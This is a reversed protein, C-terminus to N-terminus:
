VAAARRGQPVFREKDEILQRREDQAHVWMASHEQWDQAWTKDTHTPFWRDLWQIWWPDVKSPTSPAAKPIRRALDVATKLAFFVGLLGQPSEMACLAMMGFIITLHTIIMRAVLSRATSEIWAFSRTELRHRDLGFGIAVFALAPAAGSALELWGPAPEGTMNPLGLFTIMAVFFGHGFTFPIMVGLFDAVSRGESPGTPGSGQQGFEMGIWHGACRTRRRHLSILMAVSVTLFVTELWYFVLTTGASWEGAFFGLAPVANLALTQGTRGLRLLRGDGDASRPHHPM